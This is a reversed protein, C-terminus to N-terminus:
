KKIGRANGTQTSGDALSQRYLHNRGGARSIGIQALTGVLQACRDQQGGLQLRGATASGSRFLM